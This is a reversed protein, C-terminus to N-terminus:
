GQHRRQVHRGRGVFPEFVLRREFRVSHQRYRRDNRVDGGCEFEDVIRQVNTDYVHLGDDPASTNIGVRADGTITVVDRETTDGISGLILGSPDTGNARTRFARAYGGWGTETLIKLGVNTTTGLTTASPSRLTLLDIDSTSADYVELKTSPANTGIGVLGDSKVRVRENTGHTIMLDFNPHLDFQNDGSATAPPSAGQSQVDSMLSFYATMLKSGPHLQIHGTSYMSAETDAQNENAEETNLFIQRKRTM